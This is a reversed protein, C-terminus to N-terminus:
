DFTTMISTKAHGYVKSILFTKEVESKAFLICFKNCPCEWNELELQNNRGANIGGSFKFTKQDGCM